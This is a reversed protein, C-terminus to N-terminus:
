FLERLDDLCRKAAANQKNKRNKSTREMLAKTEEIKANESADSSDLAITAECLNSICEATTGEDCLSRADIYAKLRIHHETEKIRKLASAYSMSDEDVEKFKEIAAEYDKDEFAKIGKTLIEDNKLEFRIKNNLERVKENDGHDKLLPDILNRANEFYKDEYLKPLLSMFDKDEESFFVEDLTEILKKEENKPCRGKYIEM